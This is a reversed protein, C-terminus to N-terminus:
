QVEQAHHIVEVASFQYGEVMYKQALWIPEPLMHVGEDKGTHYQKGLLRGNVTMDDVFLYPDVPVLRGAEDRTAGDFFAEWDFAQAYPGWLGFKCDNSFRPWDIGEAFCREIPFHHAEMPGLETETLGSLWCRGAERAILLQRTRTFLASAAGRAEHGPINYDVALTERQEHDQTVETM